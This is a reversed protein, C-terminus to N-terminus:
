VCRLVCPACQMPADDCIRSGCYPAQPSVLKKRPQSCCKHAECFSLFLCSFMCTCSVTTVRSLVAKTWEVLTCTGGWEAITELRRWFLVRLGSTLTSDLSVLCNRTGTGNCEILVGLTCGPMYCVGVSVYVLTASVDCQM